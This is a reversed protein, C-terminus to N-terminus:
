RCAQFIFLKPKKVLAKCSRSNFKDIISAVSVGDGERSIVAGDRGHSLVVVICMESEEQEPMAAFKIINGEMQMKSQNEIRHCQLVNTDNSHCVNTTSKIYM